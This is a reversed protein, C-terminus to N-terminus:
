SSQPRRAETARLFKRAQRQRLVTHLACLLFAGVAILGTRM